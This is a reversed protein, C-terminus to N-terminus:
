NNLLIEPAYSFVFRLLFVGFFAFAFLWIGDVRKPTIYDDVAMKTFYPQTSILINTVLTLVLAGAATLWYPRLYRFLRAAVAFDYTKGIADEEHYKNADNSM